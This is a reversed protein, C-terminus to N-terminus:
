PKPSLPSVVRIVEKLAEWGMGFLRKAQEIQKDRDLRLFDDAVVREHWDRVLNFLEAKGKGELFTRDVSMYPNPKFSPDSLDYKEDSIAFGPVKKIEFGRLGHRFEPKTPTYPQVETEAGYVDNFKKFVDDLDDDLEVLTDATFM